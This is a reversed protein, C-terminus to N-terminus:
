WRSFSILAGARCWWLFPRQLQHCLILVCPWGALSAEQVHFLPVLTGQLLHEESRSQDGEQCTSNRNGHVTGSFHPTSKYYSLCVPFHIERVMTRPLAANCGNRSNGSMELSKSSQLINAVTPNIRWGHVEQWEVKIFVVFCHCYVNFMHLGFNRLLIWCKKGALKSNISLFATDKKCEYNM